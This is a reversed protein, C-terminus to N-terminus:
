HQKSPLVPTLPRSSCVHLNQYICLEVLQQACVGAAATRAHRQCRCAGRQHSAVELIWMRRSLLLLCCCRCAQKNPCVRIGATSVQMGRGLLYIEPLYIKYGLFVAAAPAGLHSAWTVWHRGASTGPGEGWSNVTLPIWCV